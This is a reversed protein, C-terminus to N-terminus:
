DKRGAFMYFAQPLFPMFLFCCIMMPVMWIARGRRDILDVSTWIMSALIMTVFFGITGAAMPSRIPKYGLFPSKFDPTKPAAFPFNFKILITAVVSLGVITWGLAMWEKQHDGIDKFLHKGKFGYLTTRLPKTPTQGGKGVPASTGRLKKILEKSKVHKPDIKLAESAMDVSQNQEGMEALHFALNYFNKATPALVTAKRLSEIAAEARGLKAYAVGRIEYVESNEPNLEAAKDLISLSESYDGKKLAKIAEDILPKSRDNSM